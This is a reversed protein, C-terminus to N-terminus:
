MGLLEKLERVVVGFIHEPTHAVGAIIIESNPTNGMECQLTLTKSYGAQLASVKLATITSPRSMPGVAAPASSSPEVAPKDFKLALWTSNSYLTATFVAMSDPSRRFRFDFPLSSFSEELAELSDASVDFAFKRDKYRIMKSRLAIVSSKIHHDFTWAIAWRSNKGQVFTTHQVDAVPFTQLYRLLPKLNVKRGLLTTFWSIRTSLASSERIMQKVFELEGGATALEGDTAVCVTDDRQFKEDPSDFYPPNCMTFHVKSFSPGGNVLRDKGDVDLLGELIHYRTEDISDQTLKAKVIAISNTWGNSEVNKTAWELSKDDIDSAIFKWGYIAHGILPYVCSAGTGVDIGAKEDDGCHALLEEIWRIYRTRSLATPCLHNPPLEVKIGFWEDLLAQNYLRISEDSMFDFHSKGTSANTTLYKLLEPHKQSLNEYSLPADEVRTLTTPATPLLASLKREPASIEELKSRKAPPLEDEM